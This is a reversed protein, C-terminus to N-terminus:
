RLNKNAQWRQIPLAGARRGACLDNEGPFVGAEIRFAPPVPLRPRAACASAGRTIYRALNEM